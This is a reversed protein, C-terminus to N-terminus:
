SVPATLAASLMAPAMASQPIIPEVLSPGATSRALYEDDFFSDNLAAGTSSFADAPDLFFDVLFDDTLDDDGFACSRELLPLFKLEGTM